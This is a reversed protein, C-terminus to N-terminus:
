VLSPTRHSIRSPTLYDDHKGTGAPCTFNMSSHVTPRTRPYIFALHCVVSNRYDLYDSSSVPSLVHVTEFRHTSKGLYHFRAAKGLRGLSQMDASGPGCM